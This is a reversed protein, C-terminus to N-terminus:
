YRKRFFGHPADPLWPPMYGSRVVQLIQERRKSFDKSAILSFPGAEGPRHCCACKEWVFPAVDNFTLKSDTIPEQDAVVVDATSPAGSSLSQVEKSQGCGMSLLALCITVAIRKNMEVKALVPTFRVRRIAGQNM